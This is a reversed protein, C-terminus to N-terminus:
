ARAARGSAGLVVKVCRHFEGDLLGGNVSRESRADGERRQSSTGMVNQFDDAAIKSAAAANPESPAGTLGSVAWSHPVNVETAPRFPLGMKHIVRPPAVSRGQKTMRRPPPCLRLPLRMASTRM